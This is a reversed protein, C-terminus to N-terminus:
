IKLGLSVFQKIKVEHLMYFMLTNKFSLKNLKNNISKGKNQTQDIKLSVPNVTCMRMVGLVDKESM